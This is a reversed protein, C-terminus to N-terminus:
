RELVIIPLSTPQIVHCVFRNCISGHIKGLKLFKIEFVGKIVYDVSIQKDTDIPNNEDHASDTLRRGRVYTLYTNKNSHIVPINNCLICTDVRYENRQKELLIIM